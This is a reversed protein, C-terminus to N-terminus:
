VPDSMSGAATSEEAAHERYYNELFEAYMEEAKERAKVADQKKEYSGLYYTKGKFVIQSAWRGTKRQPYVGTRGSTNTSYRKETNRELMKVSTGDVLKLSDRAAEARMCGCSKTKGSQLLSQGVVTERGCDCLCTWQHMGNEKGAYGTVVLKGFRQGVFAKRAPKSLCGCSKRYGAQLQHLPADVEGGCDCVCHWYYSGYSDKKGTCYQATLLGFKQGTADRQGPHIKTICGCDTVTGRELKRKNVKTTNGCDCLCNWVIYGNKREGSDNMVTLHGIRDGPEIKKSVTKAAM